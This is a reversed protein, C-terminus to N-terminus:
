GYPDRPHQGWPCLSGDILGCFLSLPVKLAASNVRHSCLSLCPAGAKLSILPIYLTFVDSSVRGTVAAHGPQPGNVALPGWGGGRGGALSVLM